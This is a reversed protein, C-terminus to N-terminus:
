RVNQRHKIEFSVTKLFIKCYIFSNVIRFHQKAKNIHKTAEPNKQEPKSYDDDSGKTSLVNLSEEDAM